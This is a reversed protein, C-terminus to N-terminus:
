RKDGVSVRYAILERLKLVHRYLLHPPLVDSPTREKEVVGKYYYEIENCVEVYYRKM